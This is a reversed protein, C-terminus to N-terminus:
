FARANLSQLYVLTLLWLPCVQCLSESVKSLGRLAVLNEGQHSVSLLPFLPSIGVAHLTTLRMSGQAPALADADATPTRLEPM